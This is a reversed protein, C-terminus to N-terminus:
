AANIDVTEITVDATAPVTAVFIFDCGLGATVDFYMIADGVNLMGRVENFYAATKVAALDDAASSYTFLSPGDKTSVGGINAFRKLEFAM